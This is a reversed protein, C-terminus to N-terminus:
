VGEGTEVYKVGTKALNTIMKALKTRYERDDLDDNFFHTWAESPLTSFVANVAVDWCAQRTIETPTRFQGGNPLSKNPTNATANSASNEGGLVKLFTIVGNEVVYEVDKQYAKAVEQQYNPIVNIWQQGIKIATHDKRASTCKGQQM